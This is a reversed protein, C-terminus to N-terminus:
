SMGKMEGTVETGHPKAICAQPPTECNYLETSRMDSEPRECRTVISSCDARVWPLGFNLTILELSTEHLLGAVNSTATPQYAFAVRTCIALHLGFWGRRVLAGIEVRM